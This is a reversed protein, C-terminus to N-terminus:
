DGNKRNRFNLAAALCGLAGAWVSAAYLWRGVIGFVAGALLLLIGATVLLRATKEVISREGKGHQEM